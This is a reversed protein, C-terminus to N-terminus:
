FCFFGAGTVPLPSRTLFRSGRGKRPRPECPADHWHVESLPSFTFDNEHLMNVGCLLGNLVKTWRLNM